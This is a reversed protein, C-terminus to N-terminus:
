TRDGRILILGGRAGGPRSRGVLIRRGSGAVLVVSDHNTLRLVDSSATPDTAADVTAPSGTTRHAVAPEPRNAPLSVFFAGLAVVALAAAAALAAPFRRRRGALRRRRRTGLAAAVTREVAEPSPALARRLRRDLAPDEATGGDRREEYRGRTTM